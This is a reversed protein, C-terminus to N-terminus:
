TLAAAAAAERQQEAREAQCWRWRCLAQLWGHPLMLNGGPLTAYVGGRVVAKAGENEGTV